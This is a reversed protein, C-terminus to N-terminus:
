IFMDLRVDEGTAIKDALEKLDIADWQKDDIQGESYWRMKTILAKGLPYRILDVGRGMSKYREDFQKRDNDMGEKISTEELWKYITRPVLRGSELRGLAGQSFASAVYCIYMHGFHHRIIEITKELTEDSFDNGMVISADLMFLNILTKLDEVFVVDKVKTHAYRQYLENAKM